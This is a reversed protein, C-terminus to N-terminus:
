VYEGVLGIFMEEVVGVGIVVIFLYVNGIFFVVIRFVRFKEVVWGLLYINMVWIFM